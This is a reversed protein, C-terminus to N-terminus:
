KVFSLPYCISSVIYCVQLLPPPPSMLNESLISEQSKNDNFSVSPMINANYASSNPQGILHSVRGGLEAMAPSKPSKPTKPSLCENSYFISSASKLLSAENNSSCLTLHYPTKGKTNYKLQHCENDSKERGM